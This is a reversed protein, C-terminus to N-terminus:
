VLRGVLHRRRRWGYLVQRPLFFFGTMITRVNIASMVSAALGPRTRTPYSASRFYDVHRTLATLDALFWM